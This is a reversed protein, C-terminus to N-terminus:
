QIEQAYPYILGLLAQDLAWQFLHSAKQQRGHMKPDAEIGSQLTLPFVPKYVIIGLLVGTLHSNNGNQLHPFQPVSLMLSKVWM